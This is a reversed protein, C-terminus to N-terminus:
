AQKTWESSYTLRSSKIPNLGIPYKDYTTPLRLAGETSILSGPPFEQHEQYIMLIPVRNCLQIRNASFLWDTLWQLDNSTMPPQSLDIWPKNLHYFLRQPHSPHDDYTTPLLLAGETGIISSKFRRYCTRCVESKWATSLCGFTWTQERRANQEYGQISQLCFALCHQFRHSSHPPLPSGQHGDM